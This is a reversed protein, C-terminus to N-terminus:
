HSTPPYKWILDRLREYFYRYNDWSVDPPVGHDLGPIYRGQELMFPSTIRRPRQHDDFFRDLKKRKAYGLLLDERVTTKTKM